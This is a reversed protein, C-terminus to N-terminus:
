QAPPEAAQAKPIREMDAASRFDVLEVQFVLDANAPIPGSERAGYGMAAPICFRAIGSKAMMQLGEAFGPIVGDVGLTSRMGQDFVAGTAALYGVYNVLVVDSAAPKAGSGQRLMSYGLGSPTRSACLRQAAPVIPNLPLPIIATSPAMPKTAIARAKTKRVTAGSVALPAFVLSLVIASVVRRSQHSSSTM